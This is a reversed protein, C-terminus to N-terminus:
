SGKPPLPFFKSTRAAYAAWGPRTAMKKELLPVGSIFLLLTTILVPSLILWWNRLSGSLSILYIGTWVLCEGFYNPHRTYRWLGTTMLQGPAHRRHRALQADGVVEFAMGILWAAGGLWAFLGPASAGRLNVYITPLGILLNLAYQSLYVRLFMTLEFRQPWRRRMALYRFDEERHLNRRALHLSLRLGWLVTLLSMLLGTHPRPGLLYSATASVVFGMGWLIDILDHKKLRAGLRHVLVFCCLVILATILFQLAM